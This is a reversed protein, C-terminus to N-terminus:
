RKGSVGEGVERGIIRSVRGLAERSATNLGRIARPMSQSARKSGGVSAKREVAVIDVREDLAVVGHRRRFHFELRVAHIEVSLV